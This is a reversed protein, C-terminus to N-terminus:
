SLKSSNEDQQLPLFLDMENGKGKPISLFYRRLRTQLFDVWPFYVPSQERETSLKPNEKIPSRNLPFDSAVSSFLPFGKIGACNEPAQSLPGLPQAGLLYINGHCGIALFFFSGKAMRPREGKKSRVM